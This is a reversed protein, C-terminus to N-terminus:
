VETIRKLIAQAYETHKEDYEKQLSTIYAKSAARQENLLSTTQQELKSRIAQIEAATSAELEKNFAHYKEDYEQNLKQKQEEANGAIACAAADIESLRKVISNM